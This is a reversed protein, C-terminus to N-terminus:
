KISSDWVVLFEIPGLGSASVAQHLQVLVAVIVISTPQCHVIQIFIRGGFGIHSVITSASMGDYMHETSIM